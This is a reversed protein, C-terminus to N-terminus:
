KIRFRKRLRFLYFSILRTLALDYIPFTIEALVAVAAFIWLPETQSGVLLLRSIVLMLVLAVNFIIEKAIWSVLRRKKELKEKLIPYYGFFLLYMIAPTKQPLLVLSLVGTVLFVLWPASGGYEIVAFVCCLSAIVAMSIDVVEVASGLWLLVVGLASLMACVTLKKTQMKKAM